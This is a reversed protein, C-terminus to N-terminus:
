DNSSQSPHPFSRTYPQKKLSSFCNIHLNISESVNNSSLHCYQFAASTSLQVIRHLWPHKLHYIDMMCIMTVDEEHATEGRDDEEVRCYRAGGGGAVCSSDTGVAQRCYQTETGRAQKCGLVMRNGLSHSPSRFSRSPHRWWGQLRQLHAIGSKRLRYQTGVYNRCHSCPSWQATPSCFWRSWSARRCLSPRSPIRPIVKDTSSSSLRCQYDM